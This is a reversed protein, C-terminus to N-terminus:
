LTSLSDFVEIKRCLLCNPNDFQYHPLLPKALKSLTKMKEDIFFEKSDTWSQYGNV